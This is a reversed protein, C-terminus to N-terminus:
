QHLFSSFCSVCSSFLPLGLFPFCVMPTLALLVLSSLLVSIEQVSRCRKQNKVVMKTKTLFIRFETLFRNLFCLFLFMVLKIIKTVTKDNEGLNNMNEGLNPYIQICM